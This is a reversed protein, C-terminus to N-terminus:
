LSVITDGDDGKLTDLGIEAFFLDASKKHGELKDEDDDGSVSSMDLLGGPDTLENVIDNYPDGSTWTDRIQDLKDADDDHITSGGLFLDGGGGGKIDDEGDGGILINMGKGGELKDDGDGGSLVDDGGGDSGGKLDDDGGGGLM